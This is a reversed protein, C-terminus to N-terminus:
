SSQMRNAKKERKKAYMDKDARRMTDMVSRDIGPDYVSLGMTIHVQEWMNETENNIVARESEFLAALEERKAYDDKQLVAAFEDGGIRFVPSHKFIRCILSSSSKLYIDGKDHGFRDNVTKLDDCDFVCIAFETDGSPDDVETQLEELYDSYAGKNRVHTLPDIFVRKNLETIHEKVHGALAIFTNTLVGMEDDGAYDLKIDYNGQDVQKAAETLEKLPKTISATFWSSVFIFVIVVILSVIIIERILRTWDGDIEDEPASVNLRMGNKLPLWAAEKSVGDYEYKLFTSDSVVGKPAKPKNKGTLKSIDISPHYVLNGKDDTIFAYGTDYLKISEVQEAMTTYDIEIGIVGAFTGKQYIPVNYSLVRKGLNETIYPPLWVPEKTAKPVTFWVLKSTDETDYETIDTVKHAKFEEGNLNTYWFGKANKSYSPDIRYYFTYVGSTKNAIVDFYKRVNGVHGPLDSKTKNELDEEAFKSVKGITKEVSNFYYDLNKQGTECLLLLTQEAERRESKTIFFVSLTTVIVVAAITVCLILLTIKSRISHM